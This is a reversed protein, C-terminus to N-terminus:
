RKLKIAICNFKCHFLNHNINYQSFNRYDNSIHFYLLNCTVHDIMPFINSININEVVFKQYKTLYYEQVPM